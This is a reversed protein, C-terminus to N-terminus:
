KLYRYLLNPKYAFLEQAFHLLYRQVTSSTLVFTNGKSNTCLFAYYSWFKDVVVNRCGVVAHVFM